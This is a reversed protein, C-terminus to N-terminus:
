LKGFRQEFGDQDGRALYDAQEIIRDRGLRGQFAGLQPDIRDLEEPTLRALQEFRTFGLGRLTEAFRPGVGKMRTFDDAPHGGAKGDLAPQTGVVLRTSVEAEHEFANEPRSRPAMHPRLPASDTLKVRQRPRFLLFLLIAALLAAILVAPWYDRLVDM